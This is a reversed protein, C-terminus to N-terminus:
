VYARAVGRFKEAVRVAVEAAEHFAGEPDTERFVQANVTHGDRFVEEGIVAHGFGCHEGAILVDATEGVIESFACSYRRAAETFIMSGSYCSQM